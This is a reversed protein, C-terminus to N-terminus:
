MKEPASIGMIGLANGIVTKVARVMVLRAETAAEDDTIVRVKNYYSHFSGALGVLYQALPHPDLIKVCSNLVDPYNGLKKIISMEEPLVLAELDVGEPDAPPLGKEDRARFISSIRAHAYQVYFVPNDASKAKALDLDFELSSECRRMLFFFRAADRGVEGVVDALTIFEGARKGMSVAQGGRVLSVLQVLRVSLDDPSRGLAQVVAKMRPVYGHHDAGGSM